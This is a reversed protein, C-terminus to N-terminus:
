TYCYVKIVVIHSLCQLEILEETSMKMTFFSFTFADKSNANTQFYTKILM